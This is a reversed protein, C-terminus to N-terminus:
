GTAVLSASTSEQVMLHAITCQSLAQRLQEVTNNCIKHLREACNALAPHDCDIPLRSQLPGDIVEVVELLTLEAPDREM